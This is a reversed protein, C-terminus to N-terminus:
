HGVGACEWCQHHYQSVLFAASASKFCQPPTPVCCSCALSKFLPLLLVIPQCHTAHEQAIPSIPAASSFLQCHCFCIVMHSPLSQCSDGQAQLVKHHVCGIKQCNISWYFFFYSWIMAAVAHQNSLRFSSPNINCLLQPSTTTFMMLFLVTADCPSRGYHAPYIRNLKKKQTMKATKREASRPGNSLELRRAKVQWGRSPAVRLM